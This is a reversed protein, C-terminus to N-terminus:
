ILETELKQYARYTNERATRKLFELLYNKSVFCIKRKYGDPLYSVTETEPIRSKQLIRKKGIIRKIDAVSFFQTGNHEIFRLPEDDIHHKLISM